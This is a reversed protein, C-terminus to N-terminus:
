IEKAFKKEKWSKLRITTTSFNFSLKLFIALVSKEAFWVQIESIIYAYKNLFKRGM